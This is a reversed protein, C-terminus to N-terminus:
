GRKRGKPRDEAEGELLATEPEDPDAPPALLAEVVERAIYVRGGISVADGRAFLDTLEKSTM